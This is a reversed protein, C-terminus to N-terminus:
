LNVSKNYMTEMKIRKPETNEKILILTIKVEEKLRIKTMDQIMM